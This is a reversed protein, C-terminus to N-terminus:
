NGKFHKLKITKQSKGVVHIKFDRLYDYIETESTQKSM